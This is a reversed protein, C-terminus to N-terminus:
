PPVRVLSARGPVGGGAATVVLYTVSTSSFTGFHAYASIFSKPVSVHRFTRRRGLEAVNRDLDDAARGRPVALVTETRKPANRNM